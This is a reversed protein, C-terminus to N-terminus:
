DAAQLREWPIAGALYPEMRRWADRDSEGRIEPLFGFQLYLNLAPLRATSTTLFARRHGLEILRQCTLSMLARGLGRGQWEPVIAVWHVRGWREGRYAPDFWATATGIHEGASSCLYLQREELPSPDWGFQRRFLELTIENYRDAAGQIKLWLPEDGQRYPRARIGEPLEFRPTAILDRCALAIPLNESVVDM